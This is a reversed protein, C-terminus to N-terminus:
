LAGGRDAHSKQQTEKGGHLIERNADSGGLGSTGSSPNGTVFEGAKDAFSNVTDKAGHALATLGTANKKEYAEWNGGGARNHPNPVHSPNTSPERAPSTSSNQQPGNLLSM